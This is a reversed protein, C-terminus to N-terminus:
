RGSEKYVLIRPKKSQRANAIVTVAVFGALYLGFFRLYDEPFLFMCNQSKMIYYASEIGLLSLVALAFSLCFIVGAELLLIQYFRRQKMGALFMVSFFRRKMEQVHHQIFIINTAGLAFILFSEVIYKSSITGVEANYDEASIECSLSKSLHDIYGQYEEESVALPFYFDISVVQLSQEAVLTYPMLFANWPYGDNQGVIEFELGGYSITDGIEKDELIMYERPAVIVPNAVENDLETIAKGYIKTLGIERYQAVVPYEGNEGMGDSLTITFASLNPVNTLSSFEEKGITDKGFTYLHSYEPIISERVKYQHVGFYQISLVMTLTLVLVQLVLTAGLRKESHIILWISKFISSHM